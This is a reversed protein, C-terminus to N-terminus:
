YKWGACFGFKQLKKLAKEVFLETNSQGLENVLDSLFDYQDYDLVKFLQQLNPSPYENKALFKLINKITM